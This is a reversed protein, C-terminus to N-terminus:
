DSGLFTPHLTSPLIRGREPNYQVMPFGGPTYTFQYKKYNAKYWDKHSTNLISELIEDKSLALLTELLCSISFDRAVVGCKNSDLFHKIEPLPTSLVCLGAQIYEFLKNPM